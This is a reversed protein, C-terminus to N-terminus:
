GGFKWSNRFAPHYYAPSYGWPMMPAYVQEPLVDPLPRYAPSYGWPMTPPMQSSYPPQGQMGGFAFPAQVDQQAEGKKSDPALSGFLLSGIQEAAPSGTAMGLANGIAGPWNGTAVNAALNIWAKPSPAGGQPQEQTVQAQKVEPM